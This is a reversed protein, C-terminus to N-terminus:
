ISKIIAYRETPENKTDLLPIRIFEDPLEKRNIVGDMMYNDYSSADTKLYFQNAYVAGTVKGKLQLKGRCYVDGIVEAEKDITLIRELKKSARVDMVVGGVVKSRPHMRIEKDTSNDKNMVIGSPYSLVADEQLVVLKEAIVQVNGKFGREFVVKPAEIIIDELSNNNKIFISDKSKLIINGSLHKHDLPIINTLIRLTPNSFSNYVHISDKIEAVDIEKIKQNSNYFDTLVAKPLNAKAVIKSGKLYTVNKYANSTIYGQKIGHKPIYADGTIRANDVMFLAKGSDSLYLATNDNKKREGILAAKFITDKKLTTMTALVKYFGWPKIAGTASIDNEFLDITIDERELENIKGLFYNQASVNTDILELHNSLLTQHIKAYGSMLLLSYCFIGVLVCIFLAYAISGAKVM